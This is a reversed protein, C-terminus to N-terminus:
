RGDTPTAKSRVTKKRRPKTSGSSSATTKPSGSEPTETSPEGTSSGIGTDQDSMSNAQTESGTLASFSEILSALNKEEDGDISHLNFIFDGLEDFAVGGIQERLWEAERRTIGGLGNGDPEHPLGSWGQVYIEVCLWRRRIEQEALDAFAKQLPEYRAVIDQQIATLRARKSEELKFEPQVAELRAAVEEESMRQAPPLEMQRELLEISLQEREMGCKRAADGAQWLAELDVVTEDFKDDDYLHSVGARMLDRVQNQSYHIVGGRVLAASFSDREYMTPVRVTIKIPDQPTEGRKTREVNEEVNRRALSPPTIKVPARASLPIPM